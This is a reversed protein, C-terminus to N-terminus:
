KSRLLNILANPLGVKSKNKSRSRFMSFQFGVRGDHDYWCVEGTLKIAAETGPLKFRLNLQEGVQLPVAGDLAMGGSINISVAIFEPHSSSHVFVQAQM